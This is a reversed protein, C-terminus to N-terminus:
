EVGMFGTPFRQDASFVAVGASKSGAAPEVGPIGLSAPSLNELKKQLMKYLTMVEEPYVGRRFHLHCKTLQRVFEKVAAVAPLPLTYHKVAYLDLDAIASAEAEDLNGADVEGTKGDDTLEIVKKLSLVGCLEDLTIVQM